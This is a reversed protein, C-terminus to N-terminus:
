IETVFVDPLGVFLPQVVRVVANVDFIIPIGCFDTKAGIVGHSRGLGVGRDRASEALAEGYRKIEELHQRVAAREVV